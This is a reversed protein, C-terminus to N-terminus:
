VLRWPLLPTAFLFFAKDWQPSLAKIKRSGALPSSGRVQQNRLLNLDKEVDYRTM